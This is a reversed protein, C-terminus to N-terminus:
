TLLKRIVLHKHKTSSGQKRYILMRTSSNSKAQTESFPAGKVRKVLYFSHTKRSSLWKIWLMSWRIITLTMLSSTTTTHTSRVKRRPSRRLDSHTEYIHSQKTPPPSYKVSVLLKKLHWIEKRMWNMLRITMVRSRTVAVWPRSLWYRNGCKM